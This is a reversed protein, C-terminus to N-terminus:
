VGSTNKAHLNNVFTNELQITELQVEFLIRIVGQLFLLAKIKWILASIRFKQVAFWCKMWDCNRRWMEGAVDVIIASSSIIPTM